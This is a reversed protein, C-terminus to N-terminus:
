IINADVVADPYDRKHCTFLIVQRERSIEYFLEMARRARTDDFNVLTDDLVIPCPDDGQLTMACMALRVSLYLLDAAGASLYSASRPLLDDARKASAAFDRTLAVGDYRGQTLFDMYDAAQRALEPSFRTQIEGDAEALAEMALAIADYQDQLADRRTRLTELESELTMPDGTAGVAGSLEAQQARLRECLRELAQKQRFYTAAESDGREFDLQHLLREHTEAQHERADEVIAARERETQMATRCARYAARHTEAQLFMDNVSRADYKALLAKFAELAAAARRNRVVQWAGLGVAALALAGAGYYVLPNVLYGLVACLFALLLAGIWFYPTGVRRSARLQARAEEADAELAAAVDEPDRVGFQTQELATRKVAADRRAAALDDELKQLDAKERGMEALADRRQRQRAENMSATLRAIEAENEELEQQLLAQRQGSQALTELKEEIAAIKQELAPIEGRSASRRKRQWARLQGDAETYSSSEEGSTVMAAIRKELEPTGTVNVGGQGIFATRAFVQESVGTLTRGADQATLGPVPTDTGTCVASFDRMPAKENPTTRRLTISKGEHTLEMEGEMPAGSWPAYKTKDPLQGGRARRASDVGYLMARLFACWTSKGSENPAYIINLGRDLKLEEGSLTGFSAKMKRIIM